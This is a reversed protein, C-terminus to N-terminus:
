KGQLLQLLWLPLKMQHARSSWFRLSVPSKTLQKLESSRLFLLLALSIRCYRQLKRGLPPSVSLCSSTPAQKSTSWPSPSSINIQSANFVMAHCRRWSFLTLIVKAIRVLLPTMFVVSVLSFAVLFYTQSRLPRNSAMTSLTLSRSQCIGFTRSMSKEDPSSNIWAKKWSPCLRRRYLTTWLTLFSRSRSAIAWAM